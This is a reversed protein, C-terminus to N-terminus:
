AAEVRVVSRGQAQAEALLASARDIEEQAGKGLQTRAGGVSVSLTGIQRASTLFITDEVSECIRTAIQESLSSEAGWLFIAFKGGKIRGVLDEARVSARIAREILQMAEAIAGEGHERIASFQDADIVLVTGRANQMADELAPLFQEQSLPQAFPEAQYGRRREVVLEPPIPETTGTRRAGMFAAGLLALASLSIFIAVGAAFIPIQWSRNQIL